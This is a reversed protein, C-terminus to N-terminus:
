TTLTIKKQFFEILDNMPSAIIKGPHLHNKELLPFIVDRFNYAVSGTFHIPLKSANEFRLIFIEIFQQLSFEILQKCYTHDAHERIFPVFSALFENAREKRYIREIVDNRQLNYKIHFAKHLDQPMSHYFFDKLLQKGMFSGSGEDGLIYGISLDDNYVKEGDFYCSNSGTGLICVIAEENGATAHVSGYLDNQIHLEAQVNFIKIADSIINITDPSSCGTGYFYIQKTHPIAKMFSSTNKLEDAIFLSSVSNPSFGKTIFQDIKNGTIDLLVWETKTSGSDAILIM